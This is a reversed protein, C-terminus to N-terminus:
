LYIRMSVHPDPSFEDFTHIYSYYLITFKAIIETSGIITKINAIVMTQKETGGLIHKIHTFECHMIRIFCVSIRISCDDYLAAYVSYSYQKGVMYLEFCTAICQLISNRIEEM